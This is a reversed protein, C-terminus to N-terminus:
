YVTSDRAAKAETKSKLIDETAERSSLCLASCQEFLHRQKSTAEPEMEENEEVHPRETMYVTDKM